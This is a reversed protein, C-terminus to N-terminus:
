GKEMFDTRHYVVCQVTLEDETMQAQSMEIISDLKQWPYLIFYIFQVLIIFWSLLSCVGTTHAALFQM